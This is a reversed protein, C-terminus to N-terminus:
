DDWQSSKKEEQKPEAKVAKKSFTPIAAPATVEAKNAASETITSSTVELKTAKKEVKPAPESKRGMASEADDDISPVFAAAQLMYRRLYTQYSMESQVGDLEGKFRKKSRMWEGSEAHVFMTILYDHLDDSDIWQSVVIGNKNLQPKCSAMVEPLGSYNSRFFPNKSDKTAGEIETQAALMAKSINVISTSMEM